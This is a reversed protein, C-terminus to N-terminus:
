VEKAYKKEMFSENAIWDVIALVVNIGIIYWIIDARIQNGSLAIFDDSVRIYRVKEINNVVLISSMGLLGVLIWIGSLLGGFRRLTLRWKDEPRFKLYDILLPATFLTLSVFFGSGEVIGHGLIFWGFLTFVSRWGLTAVKTPEDNPCTSYPCRDLNGKKNKM